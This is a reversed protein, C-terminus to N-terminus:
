NKVEQYCINCFENLVQTSIKCDYSSLANYATNRNKSDDDNGSYLYVFVNTDIFAKVGNM